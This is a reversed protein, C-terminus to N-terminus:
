NKTEFQSYHICNLPFGNSQNKELIKINLHMLMHSESHIENM